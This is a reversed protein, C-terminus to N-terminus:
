RCKAAGHGPRERVQVHRRRKVEGCGRRSKFEIRGEGVVGESREKHRDTLVKPLLGPYIQRGLGWEARTPYPPPPDCPGCLPVRALLASLCLLHQLQPELLPLQGDPKSCGFASEADCIALLDPDSQNVAISLRCRVTEAM